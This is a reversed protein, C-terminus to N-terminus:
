ASRRRPLLAKMRASVGHRWQERRVVWHSTVWNFQIARRRGSFPKHGHWANRGCRFAVMSGGVPPVEAVYDDIDEPSRLLRLRGGEAEWPPNMYILVTIVKSASDTHIRGDTSRCSGRVTCMLPRHDLDMDFKRAFAERVEPGSFDQLLAAFAPGCALVNPPFSGPRDIEPFDENAASLTAATVFGPVIVHDFPDQNLPTSRFAQLDLSSM